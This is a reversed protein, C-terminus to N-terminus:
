YMNKKVTFIFGKAKAALILMQTVSGSATGSVTNSTLVKVQFIRGVVAVPCTQTTGSFVLKIQRLLCISLGMKPDFQRSSQFATKAPFRVSLVSIARFIHQRWWFLSWLYLRQKTQSLSSRSFSLRLKMFAANANFASRVCSACASDFWSSFPCWYCLNWYSSPRRRKLWDIRFSEPHKMSTAVVCM